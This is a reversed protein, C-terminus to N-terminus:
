HADRTNRKLYPKHVRVVGLGVVRRGRGAQLLCVGESTGEAAEDALLLHAAKQALSFCGGGGGEGKRKGKSLIAHLRLKRRGLQFQTAGPVSHTLISGCGAVVVLLGHRGRRGPRDAAATPNDPAAETASAAAAVRAAAAAAAAAVAARHPGDAAAHGLIHRRRGSAARNASRRAESREDLNTESSQSTAQTPGADTHHWWWWWWWWWKSVPTNEYRTRM